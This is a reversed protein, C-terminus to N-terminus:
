GTEGISMGWRERDRRLEDTLMAMAPLVLPVITRPLPQPVVKAPPSSEGAKTESQQGGRRAGKGEEHPAPDGLSRHSVVSATRAPHRKVVPGRPFTAPLSM